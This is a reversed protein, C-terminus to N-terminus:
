KKAEDKPFYKQELLALYDLIGYGGHIIFANHRYHERVDSFMQRYKDGQQLLSIIDDIEDPYIGEFKLKQREMFITLHKVDM